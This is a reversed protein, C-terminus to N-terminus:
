KRSAPLRSFPADRGAFSIRRNSVVPSIFGSAGTQGRAADELRNLQDSAARGIAVAIAAMLPMTLEYAMHNFLACICYAIFSTHLALAMAAIDRAEDGSVLRARRYIRTLTRMSFLVAAVFLCLAPIGAESSIQTYTNHTGHWDGVTGSAQAQGANYGGFQGPGVGFLPHKLTLEISRRFLAWRAQSSEGASMAIDRDEASLADRADVTVGEFTTRFRSKLSGSLFLAAGATLLVAAIAIKLKGGPSSRLFVIASLSALGILGERSGTALLTVLMVLLVGGVLAKRLVGARSGAALLWVMPMGLLLKIALTNPNAFTTNAVMLRGDVMSGRLMVFVAGAATSLGAVCLSRRCQAPTAIVAGGVLFLVMGPVWNQTLVELSGGRWASGPVAAALWLSLGVLLAATRDQLVEIIRGSLVAMAIALGFAIAPLHLWPLVVDMIHGSFAFVYFCFCVFGLKLLPSLAPQAEATQISGALGTRLGATPTM